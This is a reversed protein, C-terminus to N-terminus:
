GYTQGRPCQTTVHGDTHGHKRDENGTCCWPFDRGRQSKGSLHPGGFHGRVHYRMLGRHWRRRGGARWREPTGAAGADPGGAGVVIKTALGAHGIAGAAAAAAAAAAAM